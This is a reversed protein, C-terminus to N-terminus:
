FPFTSAFGDAFTAEYQYSLTLSILGTFICLPIGKCEEAWDALQVETIIRQTLPYLLKYNDFSQSSIIHHYSVYMQQREMTSTKVSSDSSLATKRPHDGMWTSAEM